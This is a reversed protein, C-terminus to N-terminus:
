NSGSFTEPGAEKPILIEDYDPFLREFKSAFIVKIHDKDRDTVFFRTNHINKGVVYLYFNQKDSTTAKLTYLPDDLFIKMDDPNDEDEFFSDARLPKLASIINSVTNINLKKDRIPRKLTYNSQQDIFIKHISIGIDYEDTIIDLETIDYESLDILTRDKWNSLPKQYFQRINGPVLRIINEDKLRLFTSLHDPGTNGIDFNLIYEDNEFLRVSTSNDDDLGYRELNTINRSVIRGTKLGTLNSFLNKLAVPDAPYDNYTSIVWDRNKKELSLNLDKHNINIKDAREMDIGFLLNDATFVSKRSKFPDSLWLATVVFIILLVILIINRKSM